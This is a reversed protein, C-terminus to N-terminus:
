AAISSYEHTRRLWEHLCTFTSLGECLTWPVCVLQRNTPAPICHRRCSMGQVRPGTDILTTADVLVPYLPRTVLGPWAGSSYPVVGRQWVAATGNITGRRWYPANLYILLNPGM